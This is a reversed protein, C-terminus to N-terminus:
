VFFSQLLSKISMLQIKSPFFAFDRKIGGKPPSLPVYVTRGGTSGERVIALVTEESSYKTTTKLKEKNKTERDQAISLLGHRRNQACTFIDYRITDYPVSEIYPIRCADHRISVGALSMQDANIDPVGEPL